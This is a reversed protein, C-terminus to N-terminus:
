EVSSNRGYGANFETGRWGLISKARCEDELAMAAAAAIEKRSMEFYRARMGNRLREDVYRMGFALAARTARENRHPVFAVLRDREVRRFAEFVVVRAAELGLGRGTNRQHLVCRLELQDPKEDVRVGCIGVFVPARGAKEYISCYGCKEVEWLRKSEVILSRVEWKTVPMNACIREQVSREDYLGVM